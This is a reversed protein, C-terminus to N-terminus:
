IYLSRTPPQPAMMCLSCSHGVETDAVSVISDHLGTLISVDIVDYARKKLNTRMCGAVRALEDRSPNCAKKCLASNLFAM